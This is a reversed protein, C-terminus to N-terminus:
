THDPEPPSDDPGGRAAADYSALVQRLQALAGPPLPGGPLPTDDGSDAVLRAASVLTALELPHLTVRVATPRVRELRM